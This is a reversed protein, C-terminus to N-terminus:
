QTAIFLSPSPDTQPICIFQTATIAACSSPGKTLSGSFLFTGASPAATDPSSGFAAPQALSNGSATVTNLSGTIAGSADLDLIGDTENQALNLSPQEAAIYTGALASASFTTQTQPDLRGLEISGNTIAIEFAQDTDYFYLSVPSGGILLTARGANNADFGLTATITNSGNTYTGSDNRFSRNLTLDGRSDGSGELLQAYYGSVSNNGNNYSIDGAQSSLIVAGSLNAVSWSKQQQIRAEGSRVRGNGNFTSSDVLFARKADVLYLTFMQTSKAGNSTRNITVSFRGTSADISSITGTFTDLEPTSDGGVADELFGNAIVGASADFRGAIAEVSAQTYGPYLDGADTFVFSNNLTASTFASPDSLLCDAAGYNGAGPVTDTELMHLHTFPGASAPTVLSWHRTDQYTSSGQRTTEVIAATGGPASALTYTGTLTETTISTESADDSSGATINGQGDAVFSFASAWPEPQNSITYGQARCTYVGKLAANANAANVVIQYSQSATDSYADTATLAFNFTGPTTPTGTIAATSANLSLGDPLAGSTVAFSLAGAGGTATATTGTYAQGVTANLPVNGSFAIAPAALIAVNLPASNTVPTPTGSDTIKIQLNSSGICSKGPAGTTSFTGNTFSVCAPLSGSAIAFTYPPIGGTAQLQVSLPTGVHTLVNYDAVSLTPIAPVTIATYASQVPNTVSTAMVNVSLQDPPQTPATYTASTATTNSLAGQGSLTWHVGANAADNLVTATLTVSNGGDVTTTAPSVSVAIQQPPQTSGSNGSTCGVLTFACVSLSAALLRTM